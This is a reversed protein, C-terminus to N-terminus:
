ISLEFSNKSAFWTILAVLANLFRKLQCDDILLNYINLLVFYYLSNFSSITILAIKTLDSNKDTLVKVQYYEM